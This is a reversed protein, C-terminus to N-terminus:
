LQTKGFIERQAATDSHSRCIQHRVAPFSNTSTERNQSPEFGVNSDSLASRVQSVWAEFKRTLESDAQLDGQVRFNLLAGQLILRKDGFLPTAASSPLYPQELDTSFTRNIEDEAGQSLLTVLVEQAADQVEIDVADNFLLNASVDVLLETTQTAYVSDMSGIRAAERLATTCADPDRSALLAFIDLRARLDTASRDESLGSFLAYEHILSLALSQRLFSCAAFHNQPLDLIIKM